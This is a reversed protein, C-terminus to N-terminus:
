AVPLLWLARVWAGGASRPRVIGMAPVGRVAAPAAAARAPVVGLAVAVGAGPAAVALGVVVGAALGVAAASGSCREAVLGRVGSFVTTANKMATTITISNARRHPLRIGFIRWGRTIPSTSAPIRSPGVATRHARGGGATAPRRRPCRGRYLRPPSGPGPRRCTRSRAPPRDRAAGRGRGSSGRRRSYLAAPAM